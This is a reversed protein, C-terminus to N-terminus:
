SKGFSNQATVNKIHPRKFCKWIGWRLASDVWSTSSRRNRASFLFLKNKRHGVFHKKIYQKQPISAAERASDIGCKTPTNSFQKPPYTSTELIKSTSGDRPRLPHKKNSKFNENFFQQTSTPVKKENQDFHGSWKQIEGVWCNKLRIVTKDRSTTSLM